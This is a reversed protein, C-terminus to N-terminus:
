HMTKSTKAVLNTSAPELLLNRIAQQQAKSINLVREFYADISGERQEIHRLATRIYEPDSRMLPARVEAPLKAIFAFPNPKSSKIESPRSYEAEYDVVKESLAYDEAVIERPVGLMTLLLAAAVGTRDKGASCNFALPADGAALSEFMTRYSPAHTYPLEGYLELMTARVSQANPAGNEFLARLGSESLYDRSRYDVQSGNAKWETPEREREENARFDCIVRIGLTSLFEYDAETLHTMTGSRYIKGWKVRQGDVTRYGGLDRFNRGRQLPLLREATTFSLGTDTTLHVLPRRASEEADLEHQGDRDSQSARRLQQEGPFQLFVDVPANSPSSQWRILANGNSTREVTAAQITTANRDALALTVLSLSALTAIGIARLALNM